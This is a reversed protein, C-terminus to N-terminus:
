GFREGRRAADFPPRTRLELQIRGVMRSIADFRREDGDRERASDFSRVQSSGRKIKRGLEDQEETLEALFRRLDYVSATTFDEIEADDERRPPLGRPRIPPESRPEPPRERRPPPSRREVVPRSFSEGETMMSQFRALTDDYRDLTRSRNEVEALYKTTLEEIKLNQAEIISDKDATSRTKRAQLQSEYLALQDELKQIIRAREELEAEYEERLRHIEMAHARNLAAIETSLRDSDAQLDPSSIPSGFAIETESPKSPSFAGVDPEAPSEEESM